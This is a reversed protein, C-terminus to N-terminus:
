MVAKVRTWYAVVLLYAGRKSYQLQHWCYLNGQSSFVGKLNLMIRKGERTNKANFGPM